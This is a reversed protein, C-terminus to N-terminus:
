AILLGPGLEPRVPTQTVVLKLEPAQRQGDTRGQLDLPAKAFPVPHAAALRGLYLVLYKM